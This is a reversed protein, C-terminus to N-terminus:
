KQSHITFVSGFINVGTLIKQVIVHKEEFVDIKWKIIFADAVKSRGQGWRQLFTM